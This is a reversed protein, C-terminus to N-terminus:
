IPNRSWYLGALFDIYPVKFDNNQWNKIIIAFERLLKLEYE